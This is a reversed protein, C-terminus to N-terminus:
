LQRSGEVDARFTFEGALALEVYGDLGTKPNRQSVSLGDRVHMPRGLVSILVHAEPDHNALMMALTKVRM